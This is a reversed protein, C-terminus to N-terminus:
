FFGSLHRLVKSELISYKSSYPNILSFLNLKLIKYSQEVKFEAYIKLLDKISTKRGNKCENIRGEYRKRLYRNSYLRYRRVLRVKHSFVYRPTPAAM